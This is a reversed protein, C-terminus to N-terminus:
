WYYATVGVGDSCKLTATQSTVKLNSTKATLTVTPPTDDIWQAEFTVTNGSVSTLNKFTTAKTNSISTATTTQNGYTHTVGDM